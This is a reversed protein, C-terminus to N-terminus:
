LHLDVRNQYSQIQNKSMEKRPAQKTGKEFSITLLALDRTSAISSSLHVEHNETGENNIKRCVM